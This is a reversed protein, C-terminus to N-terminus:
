GSNRSVAAIDDVHVLCLDDITEANDEAVLEDGNGVGILFFYLLVDVEM